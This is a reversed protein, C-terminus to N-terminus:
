SIVVIQILQGKKTRINQPDSMYFAIQELQFNSYLRANRLLWVLITNIKIQM